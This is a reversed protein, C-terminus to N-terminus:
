KGRRPNINPSPWCQLAKGARQTQADLESPFKYEEEDLWERIRRLAKRVVVAASEPAEPHNAYESPAKAPDILAENFPREAQADM